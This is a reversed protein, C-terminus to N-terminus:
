LAPADCSLTAAPLAITCHEPESPTRTHERHLISASGQEVKLLEIDSILWGQKASVVRLARDVSARVSPDTYLTKLRLAHFGLSFGALLIILWFALICAPCRGSFIRTISLRILQWVFQAQVKMSLKSKGHLRMRFILPVEAIRTDSPTHALIELLIKFGSPRLSARMDRYLEAKVAFFGSLPDSVKMPAFRQALFTGMSSIIRRDRVWEGVSGGKVYRSGVAVGAGHRVASLLKLILTADHQGDADMVVLTDGRAMDFGEVVASSLGRRGVRRLVRLSRHKTTLGQAVRWTGDPSDDDVVIIEHPTEQLVGDVVDILATINASENYTPLVLSLM